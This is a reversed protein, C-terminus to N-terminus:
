QHYSALLEVEKKSRNRLFEGRRDHRQTEQCQDGDPGVECVTTAVSEGRRQWLEFQKVVDLNEKVHLMLFIVLTASALHSSGKERM